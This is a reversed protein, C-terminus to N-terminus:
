LRPTFQPPTSDATQRLWWSSLNSQQFCILSIYDVPIQALKKKKQIRDCHSPCSISSPVITASSMRLHLNHLSSVVGREQMKGNSRGKRKETGIKMITKKKICVFYNGTRGQPVHFSSTVLSCRFWQYWIFKRDLRMQVGYRVGICVCM